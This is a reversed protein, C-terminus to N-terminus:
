AVPPPDTDYGTHLRTPQNPRHPRFEVGIEAKVTAFFPEAAAGDLSSGTRSTSQQNGLRRLVNRYIRWHYQSRRPPLRGPSSTRRLAEDHKTLTHDV